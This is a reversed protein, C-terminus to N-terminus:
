EVPEVEYWIHSLFGEEDPEAIQDLLEPTDGVCRWSYITSHGTWAMPIFDADPNEQCFTIMAESPTQDTNAKSDCPLNAGYTCAYVKHNMCRWTTMERFLETFEPDTNGGSAAIFGKLLSDPMKEGTYRADPQDITGVEACYAFPDSFTTAPAPTDAAVTVEVPAIPTCASALLIFVFAALAVLHRTHIWM